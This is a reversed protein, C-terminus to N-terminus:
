YIIVSLSFRRPNEYTFLFCAILKTRQQVLGREESVKCPM